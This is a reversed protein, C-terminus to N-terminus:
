RRRGAVKAQPEASRVKAPARGPRSKPAPPPISAVSDVFLVARGRRHEARVHLFGHDRAFGEYDHKSREMHESFARWLARAQEEPLDIGDRVVALRGESM